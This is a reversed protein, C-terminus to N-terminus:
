PSLAVTRPLYPIIYFGKRRDVPTDVFRLVRDLVLVGPPVCLVPFPPRCVDRRLAVAGNRRCDLKQPM